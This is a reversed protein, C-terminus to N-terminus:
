LGHAVNISAGEYAMNGAAEFVCTLKAWRTQDRVDLKKPKMKRTLKEVSQKVVVGIATGEDFAPLLFDVKM